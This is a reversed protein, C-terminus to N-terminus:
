LLDVFHTDTKLLKIAFGDKLLLATKFLMKSFFFALCGQQKGGM